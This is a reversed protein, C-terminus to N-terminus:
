RLRAVFQTAELTFASTVDGPVLFLKPDDRFDFLRYVYYQEAREFSMDVEKRTVFFPTHPGFTTTKVEILRDRGTAEFSLIDYGEADGRTRSVHEIQL